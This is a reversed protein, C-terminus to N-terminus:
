NQLRQTALRPLRSRRRSPRSWKQARTLFLDRATIAALEPPVIAAHIGKLASGFDLWQRDTLSVEYGNKGEIFAYLILKFAGLSAYRQKSKTPLPAIIARIGQESLFQPVAVTIEDFDGKRLKLFYTSGDETELRYVTYGCM